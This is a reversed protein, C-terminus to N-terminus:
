RSVDSEGGGRVLRMQPSSRARAACTGPRQHRGRHLDQEALDELGSMRKNRRRALICCTATRQETWPSFQHSPQTPTPAGVWDQQYRQTSRSPVDPTRGTRRRFQAVHGSCPQDGGEAHSGPPISGLVESTYPGSPVKGVGKPPSYRPISLRLLRTSYHWWRSQPPKSPWRIPKGDFDRATELDVQPVWRSSVRSTRM